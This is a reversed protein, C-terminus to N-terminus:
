ESKRTREELTLLLHIIGGLTQFLCFYLASIALIPLGGRRQVGAALGALVVLGSVAGVILVGWAVVRFLLALLRLGKYPHAM